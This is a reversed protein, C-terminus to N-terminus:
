WWDDGACRQCGAAAGTFHCQGVVHARGSRSGGSTHEEDEILNVIGDRYFDSIYRDDAQQLIDLVLKAVEYELTDLQDLGRSMEEYTGNEFLANLRNAAASLRAQSLPEALTLLQQQVEGSHLVLILLVLRGQTSILQLHKFRNARAHPATVVSAGHSTRALIAAALQM